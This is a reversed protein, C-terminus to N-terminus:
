ERTVHQTVIYDAGRFKVDLQRSRYIQKLAAMQEISLDSEHYLYVLRTFVLDEQRLMQGPTGGSVSAKALDELAKDVQGSLFVCVNYVDPVSPIFFGVFKSKADFNYYVQAIVVTGTGTPGTIVEDKHARLMTDFDKSFLDRLSPPPAYPKPSPTAKARPAAAPDAPLGTVSFQLTARLNDPSRLRLPISQVNFGGYWVSDSFTTVSAAVRFRRLLLRVGSHYELSVLAVTAEDHRSGHDSESANPPRAHNAILRLTFGNWIVPPISIKSPTTDIYSVHQVDKDAVRFSPGGSISYMGDDLIRPKYKAFHASSLFAEQTSQGETVWTLTVSVVPQETLKRIELVPISPDGVLDTRPTLDAGPVWELNYLTNLPAVLVVEPEPTAPPPQLPQAVTAMQKLQGRLSRIESLITKALDPKEPAVKHHIWSSLAALLLAGVISLVWAKISVANRAPVGAILQEPTHVTFWRPFHGRLAVTVAAFFILYAWFPGGNLYALGIPLLTTGWAIWVSRATHEDMQAM